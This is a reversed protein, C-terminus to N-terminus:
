KARRNGVADFIVVLTTHCSCNRHEYREYPGDEDAEFVTDGIHTLGSWKAPDLKTALHSAESCM